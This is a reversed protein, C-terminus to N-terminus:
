ALAVGGGWGWMVTSGGASPGYVAQFRSVTYRAVQGLECSLITDGGVYIAIHGYTYSYPSHVVGIIMGPKLQGLDTSHCYNATMDCGNGGFHIGVKDFVWTVWTACLNYGASPTSYAAEILKSQSATTTGDNLSGGSTTPITTYQHWRNYYDNAANIRVSWRSIGAVEFKNLWLRTAEEVSSTNKFSDGGLQAGYYNDYEYMLFNMQGQVSKYDYGNNNCYNILNTRRSGTWQCLGFGGGGSYEEVDVIFGSEAYMNGMIGATAAASFGHARLFNWVQAEVSDGEVSDSGGSSEEVVNEVEDMSNEYSLELTMTHIGNEYYHVDSEIYLKKESILESDIRTSWGTQFAWDGIAEVTCTKSGDNIKKVDDSSSSQSDTENVGVIYGIKHVLEDDNELWATIGSSGRSWISTVADASDEETKVNTLACKWPESQYRLRNSTIKDGKEIVSLKYGTMRPYYFKGNIKHTETWAIMIAEYGNKGKANVDVKVDKVDPMEGPTVGLEKCVKETIEAATMQAFKNTIADSTMLFKMNDYCTVSMLSSSDDKEVKWVLGYFVMDEYPQNEDFLEPDKVVIADGRAINTVQGLYYDKKWRLVDFTMKRSASKVAGEIKVGSCIATIDKLDPSRSGDDNRGRLYIRTENCKSRVM